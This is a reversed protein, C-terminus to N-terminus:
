HTIALLDQRQLPGEGTSTDGLCAKARLTHATVQLVDDIGQFIAQFWQHLSLQRDQHIDEMPWLQKEHLPRLRKLSALASSEQGLSSAKCNGLPQQSHQSPSTIKMRQPNHMGPPITPVTGECVGKGREATHRHSQQALSTCCVLSRMSVSSFSHMLTSLVSCCISTFLFLYPSLTLVVTGCCTRLGAGQRRLGQKGTGEKSCGM